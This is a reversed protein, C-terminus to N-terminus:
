AAEEAQRVVAERVAEATMPVLSDMLEEAQVRAVSERKKAAMYTDLKEKQDLPYLERLEVLERERAGIKIDAKRDGERLLVITVKKLTVEDDRWREQMYYAEVSVKRREKTAQDISRKLKALSKDSLALSGCKWEETATDFVIEHGKHKDGIM